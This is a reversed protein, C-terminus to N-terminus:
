FCFPLTIWWYYNNENYCSYLNMQKTILRHLFRALFFIGDLYLINSIILQYHIIQSYFLLSSYLFIEKSYNNYHWEIM